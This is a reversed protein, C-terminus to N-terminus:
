INHAYTSEKPIPQSDVSDPRQVRDRARRAEDLSALNDAWEQWPMHVTAVNYLPLVLRAPTWFYRHHLQNFYLCGGRIEWDKWGYRDLTGQQSLVLRIAWRPAGLRLWRYWTRETIDCLEICQAVTLGAVIRAQVICDETDLRAKLVYSM